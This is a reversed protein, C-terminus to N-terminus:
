HRSVAANWLQSWAQFLLLMNASLWVRWASGRGDRSQLWMRRNSSSISAANALMYQQLQDAGASVLYRAWGMGVDAFALAFAGDTDSITTYPVM